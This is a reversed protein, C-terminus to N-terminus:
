FASDSDVSSKTPIWWTAAAIQMNEGTNSWIAGEVQPNRVGM